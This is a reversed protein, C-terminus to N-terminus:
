HYESGGWEVVTFGERKISVMKQDIVAYNEDVPKWIIYIRYLHDPKPQIDLEAYKNCTENFEFRIFNSKNRMLRPGWYTIFDAQEQTSLGAETLKEELFSITEADKVVFGSHLEPETFSLDQKSEWFLYNYIKDGFKLSGDPSAQFTWGDDYAPYMFTLTGKIDMKVQVDLDTTPYLYIVPKDMEGGITPIRMIDSPDLKIVKIASELYISYDDRHQANINISDTYVEFFSSSYYFQFIHKGPAAVIELYSNNILSGIGVIGDISFDIDGNLITDTFTEFSFKFVASDLALTTDLESKDLSYNPIRLGKEAFSFTSITGIFILILIHKM